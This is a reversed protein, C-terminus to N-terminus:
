RPRPGGRPDRIGVILLWLCTGIEGVASPLTVIGAIASERYGSSLLGGIFDVLYGVCGAM